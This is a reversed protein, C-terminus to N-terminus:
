IRDAFYRKAVEDFFLEQTFKAANGLDMHTIEMIKHTYENDLSRPRIGLERSRLIDKYIELMEEDAVEKFIDFKNM